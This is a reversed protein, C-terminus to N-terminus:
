ADAPGKGLLGLVLEVAVPVAAEVSSSLGVRGLGPEGFSEPECGVVQLWPLPLGRRSLESLLDHPRLSHASIGSLSTARDDESAPLSPEFVRLTGSALGASHADILIVRQYGTAAEHVLDFSRTGFDRLRVQAPLSRRGLARVVESGFGDDGLFTNGVGAILTLPPIM